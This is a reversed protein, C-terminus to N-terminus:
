LPAGKRGNSGVAEAAEADKLDRDSGSKSPPEKGDAQGEKGGNGAVEESGAKGAEM